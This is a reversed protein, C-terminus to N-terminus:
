TGNIKAHIIIINSNWNAVNKEPRCTEKQKHSASLLFSLFIKYFKLPVKTLKSATAFVCVDKNV